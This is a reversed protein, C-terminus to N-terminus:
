GAGRVVPRLVERHPQYEVGQRTHRGEGLNARRGRATRVGLPGRGQARDRAHGARRRRAGRRACASGPGSGPRHRRLRPRRHAESRSRSAGEPLVEGRARRRTVIPWAWVRATLKQGGSPEDEVRAFRPKDYAYFMRLLTRVHNGVLNDLQSTLRAPPAYPAVVRRKTRDARQAEYQAYDQEFGQELKGAGSRLRDAALRAHNRPQDTPEGGRPLPNPPTEPLTDIRPEFHAALGTVLQPTSSVGVDVQGTAALQAFVTHSEGPAIEIQEEALRMPQALEEEAPPQAEPEEAVDAVVERGTLRAKASQAKRDVWAKGAEVKGKAWERGAELKAKGFAVAPGITRRYVEAAGFIVQDVVRTIPRRVLAIISRVKESLAGLNALRALFGIALSLGNALASEVKEIAASVNGQAIASISDLIAEVFAAIQKAREVIFMVIQYIGQCAKIFAAAPNLLAVIYSIGAKIVREIVYSKIKGVVLDELDALKERIWTWLGAVGEKVLTAFVDVKEEM